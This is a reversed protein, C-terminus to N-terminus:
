QLWRVLKATMATLVMITIYYFSKEEAKLKKKKFIKFM